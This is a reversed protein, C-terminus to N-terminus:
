LRSYASVLVFHEGFMLEVSYLGVSYSGELFHKFINILLPSTNSIKCYKALSRIPGGFGRNKASNILNYNKEFSKM